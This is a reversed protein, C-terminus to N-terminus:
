NAPRRINDADIQVVHKLDAISATVAEVKASLADVTAFLGKFTPTYLSRPSSCSNFGSM